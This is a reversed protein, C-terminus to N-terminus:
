DRNKNKLSSYYCSVKVAQNGFVGMNNIMVGAPGEQFAIDYKIFKVLSSNIAVLFYGDPTDHPNGVFNQSGIYVWTSANTFPFVYCVFSKSADNKYSQAILADGANVKINSFPIDKYFSGGFCISNFFLLLFLIVKKM